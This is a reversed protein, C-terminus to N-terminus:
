FFVDTDDVEEACEVQRETANQAIKFLESGILVPVQFMSVKYYDPSVKLNNIIGSLSHMRFADYANSTFFPACFHFHLKYVTPPYNAFVMIDHKEVKFEKQIAEVCQEYLRELMGVHEGRLDRITRVAPDSVIALWNLSKSTMQRGGTSGEQSEQVPQRACRPPFRQQQQQRQWGGLSQRQQWHMQGQAQPRFQRRNAILDPLLVFEDTRLKVSESERKSWVVEQVWAKSPKLIEQEIFSQVECSLHMEATETFFRVGGECHM